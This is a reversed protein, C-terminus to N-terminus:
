AQRNHGPSGGAVLTGTLFRLMSRTLCALQRGTDVPNRHSRLASPSAARTKHRGGTAAGAVCSGPQLYSVHMQTATVTSHLLTVPLSVTKGESEAPLRRWRNINDASGCRNVSIVRASPVEELSATCSTYSESRPDSARQRPLTQPLTQPQLATRRRRTVEGAAPVGVVTPVPPRHVLWVDWSQFAVYM